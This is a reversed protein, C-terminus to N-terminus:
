ATKTIPIINNANQNMKDLDKKMADVERQLEFSEYARIGVNIGEILQKFESATFDGMSAQNILQKYQEYPTSNADIHIRVRNTKGVGHRAAGQIRWLEMNFEEDGKGLLGEREWNDRSIMCGIRYCENFLPHKYIWKYFLRDSIGTKVCFATMTGESDMVDLILPCHKDEEYPVEGKKNLLYIKKADIAM